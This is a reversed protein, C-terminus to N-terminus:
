RCSGLADLVQQTSRLYSLYTEREAPTLAAGHLSQVLTDVESLLEMAQAPFDRSARSMYAMGLQYVWTALHDIECELAYGVANRHGSEYAETPRPQRKWAFWTRVFVTGPDM